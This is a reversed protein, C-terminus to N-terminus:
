EERLAKAFVVYYLAAVFLVGGIINGLTVPIINGWYGAINVNALKGPALAAAQVVDPAGNKTEGEEAAAIISEMYNKARETEGDDIFRRLIQEHHRLDHHLQRARERSGAFMEVEDRQHRLQAEMFAESSKVVALELREKQLRLVTLCAIAMTLLWGSAATYVRWLSAVAVKESVLLLLFISMAVCVPLFVSINWESCCARLFHRYFGHLKKVYFWLLLGNGLVCGVAVALPPAPTQLAIFGVTIMVLM